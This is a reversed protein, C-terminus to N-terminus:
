PYCRWKNAGNFFGRESGFQVVNSYRSLMDILTRTGCKPPGLINLAPITPIPYIAAQQDTEILNHLRPAQEFSGVSSQSIYSDTYPKQHIFFYMFVSLSISAFILIAIILYNLKFQWKRSM